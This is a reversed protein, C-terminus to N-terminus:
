VIPYSGTEGLSQGMPDEEENTLANQGARGGTEVRIWTTQMIKQRVSYCRNFVCRNYLSTRTYTNNKIPRKGNPGFLSRSAVQGDNRRWQRYYIYIYKKKGTM